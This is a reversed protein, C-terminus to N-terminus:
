LPTLDTTTEPESNTKGTLSVFFRTLHEMNAKLILLILVVGDTFKIEELKEM